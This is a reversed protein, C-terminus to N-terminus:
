HRIETNCTNRRVPVCFVEGWEVRHGLRLLNQLNFRLMFQGEDAGECRGDRSHHAELVGRVLFDAEFDLGSRGLPVANLWVGSDDIGFLLDM